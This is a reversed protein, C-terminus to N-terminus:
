KKVSSYRREHIKALSYTPNIYIVPGWDGRTLDPTMKGHIKRVLWWEGDMSKSPMFYTAEEFYLKRPTLFYTEWLTNWWVGGVKPVEEKPINISTNQSINQLIKLEVTDSNIPVLTKSQFSANLNLFLFILAASM